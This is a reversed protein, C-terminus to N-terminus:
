EVETQKISTFLYVIIIIFLLTIVIPFTMSKRTAM